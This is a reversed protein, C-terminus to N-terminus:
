LPLLAAGDSLARVDNVWVCPNTICLLVTAVAPAKGALRKAYLYLPTVTLSGLIANALAVAGLERGGPVFLAKAVLVFWLEGPPQPQHRLVDFKRVALAFNATDVFELPGRCFCLRTVLAAATLFLCTDLAERDRPEFRM